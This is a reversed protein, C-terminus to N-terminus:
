ESTSAAVDDNLQRQADLIEREREPALGALPVGERLPPPGHLGSLWTWTDSVTEKVPRCRLGARHAREVDADHM